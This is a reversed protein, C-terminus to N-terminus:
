SEDAQLAPIRTLTPVFMENVVLDTTPVNKLGGPTSEASHLM